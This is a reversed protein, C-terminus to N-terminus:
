DRGEAYLPEVLAAIRQVAFADCALVEDVSEFAPKGNEVVHRAVMWAQLREPTKASVELAEILDLASPRRLEVATGDALERRVNKLTLADRISM